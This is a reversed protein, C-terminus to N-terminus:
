RGSYQVITDMHSNREFQANPALTGTIDGVADTISSIEPRNPAITDVTLTFPDTGATENGAADTAKITFKHEGQTLNHSLELSWTGDAAATVTGIMRGNDYVTVTAGKKAEGSLTPRRENTVVDLALEDGAANVVKAITPVDPATTDVNITWSASSIGENGAKDTATVTFIHEGETLDATPTFSWTGNANATTEGLLTGNDYIKVVSGAEAGSGSLVPKTEDTTKGNTVNGTFQGTNDRIETISPATPPTTDVEFQFTESKESKNGATDQAQM